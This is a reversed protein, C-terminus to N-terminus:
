NAPLLALLFTRSILTFISNCNGSTEQLPKGNQDTTKVEQNFSDKQSKTEAPTPWANPPLSIEAVGLLFSLM